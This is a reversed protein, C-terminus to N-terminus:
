RRPRRAARRMADVRTAFERPRLIPTGRWPSLDLLHADSSVILVAGSALALELIRNDEHDVCDNVRVAPEVIQGGSATAIELLVTVYEEAREVPWRFGDPDTLVRLVNGVVHPSLWLSFERADNVIGVCDAAPHPSVPPPSPWSWFTTNGEVVAAVLVNVDFTVAQRAVDSVGAGSPSFASSLPRSPRMM